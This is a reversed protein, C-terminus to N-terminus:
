RSMASCFSKQILMGVSRPPPPAEKRATASVTRSIPRCQPEVAREKAICVCGTAVFTKLCARPSVEAVSASRFIARFSSTMAPVPAFSQSDDDPSASRTSPPYRTVAWLRKTLPEGPASTKTVLTAWSAAPPRSTRWKATGNM